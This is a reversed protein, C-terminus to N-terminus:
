TGSHFLSSEYLQSRWLRATDDVAHFAYEACTEAVAFPYTLWARATNTWTDSRLQAELTRVLIMQLLSARQKGSALWSIYYPMGSPTESAKSKPLVPKDHLIDMCHIAQLSSRLTSRLPPELVLLLCMMGRLPILMLCPYVLWLGACLVWQVARATRSKLINLQYKSRVRDPLLSHGVMLAARVLLGTLWHKKASLVSAEVNHVVTGTLEYGSDLRDLRHNFSILFDAYTTTLM